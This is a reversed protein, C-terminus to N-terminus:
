NTKWAEAVLSGDKVFAREPRPNGKRDPSVSIHSAIRLQTPTLDLACVVSRDNGTAGAHVVGRLKGWVVVNGGAIVEAGPNVDGLIVVHGPHRIKQGSRLTREILVAQDGELEFSVPELDGNEGLEPRPIELALGLNAGASRTGASSSLIAALAVEREQLEDRLGGLEAAGLDRDAVQLVLRAGRFFDAREDIAQLLSPRVVQWDGEPVTVLLGDGIGKLALSSGM